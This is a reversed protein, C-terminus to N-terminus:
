TKLFQSLRNNLAILRDNVQPIFEAYVASPLLAVKQVPRPQLALVASALLVLTALYTVEDVLNWTAAYNRLLTQLLMDNLTRFCSYLCFAIGISQLSPHILVRYYRAFLFFVVLVTAMSCELGLDFTNIIRVFDHQGLLLTLLLVIGGSLALARWTIGWIGRFQGLILHCLECVAIWRIITVIAQSIWGVRFAQWSEYGWISYVVYVVPSQLLGILLYSFTAPFTQYHKKAVILLLVSLQLALSCGWLIKLVNAMSAMAFPM